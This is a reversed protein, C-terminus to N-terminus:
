TRSVLSPVTTNARGDLPFGPLGIGNGARDGSKGGDEPLVHWSQNIATEPWPHSISVRAIM